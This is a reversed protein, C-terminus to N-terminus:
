NDVKRVRVLMMRSLILLVCTFGALILWASWMHGKTYEFFDEAVHEIPLGQQQLNLPLSNLNATTGLGEMSWRCIAFWSIYETIDSLTFLLGSFLMQPMLLLPAVTMARDPNSFLSSVLLGMASASLATLWSTILLELAPTMMIGQEPIGILLWFMAILMVCQILCLFGFVIIKSILYSSLSLGTMYERKLINREKCIEQISNLMGIWFGSCSLAFLLSKTMEYQEFQKGNAVFSILAALLPAQLLLLLLRQRDNLMLRLNRECLVKLQHPRHKEQKETLIEKSKNEKSPSSVERYKEQWEVPHDTIKAYIDVVDDTEFFDLAERENGLFCLRGGRGMFAIKDCMSLQLTSHTVLIVTKGTNAMRRLSQMLSRETGPDLGSAPEDLFLLKPDSLLEVAISARKRQGGSLNRILSDKKENLEVLAIAHKIAKEREEDGLDQPLRLQATYKLMDYLTLNNYVIDSQPVYGFSSKLIDFHRYLDNGNIYVGGEKPKLYGCLVNMITSKGAGSGGIIAVMEGPSVMMDVHDSTIFSHNGRGRVVVVDRADVSIGHNNTCIYLGDSSFIIKTSAVCIVDQEHILCNERVLTDNVLIGNEKSENRINWGDDTKYIVAHRRSVNIYPLVIDNEKSRGITIEDKKIPIRNWGSDPVDSSALFLVADAREENRSGIRFIDGDSIVRKKIYAGNCLIGNTSNKDEVYWKGKEFVFRGHIRSVIPSKLCIASGDNSSERGFAIEKRGTKVLDIQQIEERGDLITIYRGNHKTNHYRYGETPNDQERLDENAM